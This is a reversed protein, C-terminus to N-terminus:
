LTLWYNVKFVIARNKPGFNNIRFNDVADDTEVLYNDTYVLFIDSMPAFRWQLRSNINFNEAQTNYQIFTTWFLNNSFNIEIKPSFSYLEREGYPGGFQLMNYAMKLGFNGWPQVRYNLEAEIGTRTGSYFGGQTFELDYFFPKRQDSRYNLRLINTIYSQAPLPEDSDDSTFTFPYLLENLENALSVRFRSRGRFNLEYSASTRRAIIDKEDAQPTIWNFISFSQSTINGKKKPYIQYEFDMFLSGYGVRFSTDRVADYHNIRDLFGMDLYYNQQVQYWNIIGSFNRGQRRIGAKYYYNKDTIGPKFSHNYGTWAQWQNDKSLYTFELGANRGYDNSQFETGDVSQRNLVFAKVVSRDLVRYRVAAASYNQALFDDTSRTHMNLLGMRLNKTANGTLRLGYLIPISNGDGDLGIRRSFFPRAPSNGFDSFIDSNELFFLRQEPLRVNFRGLNTVQEDVEVQSFDPNVTVDLNLSSTVAIKADAGINFDTDTTSPESEFDSFVGGSTYPIVAVNGKIKNPAEDWILGGTYNLDVSRFQVPVNTWTHFSNDSMESRIFNIGWTDKSDEYRLTKFPIAIEAIWHDSSRTTKSYWKNDWDDNMGSGRSGRRGTNGTILAEMQVGYPNVGFLFGSTKLNVPDVVFAFGDGSWFNADRKLTQIIYGNPDYCKAAVYLFNDDYTVQVETKLEAKKDDVPFSMWFDSAVESNQWTAENLLGDVVIKENTRNIHIQYEEQPTGNNGYLSFVFFLFFATLVYLNNFM